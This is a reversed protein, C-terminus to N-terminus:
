AQVQFDTWFLSPLLAGDNQVCTLTLIRKVEQGVL